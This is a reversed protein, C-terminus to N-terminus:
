WEVRLPTEMWPLKVWQWGWPFRELVVDYSKREVRLLWAGDRLSLLGPRLLFSGRFGAASMNHLIPAQAIVAKLLSACEKKESKLLPPGFDFVQRLELGCLLKNLPLLYEPPAADQAAIVQLLGVGRQRAALDKFQKEEMLGLHTFFGTLFPWLIVLGASSVSQEEAESFRLDPLPQHAEQAMGNQRRWGQVQGPVTHRLYSHVGARFVKLLKAREERPLGHQDTNLLRLISETISENELPMLAELWASQAQPPLQLTLARLASWAEALPGGESQYQQLRVALEEGTETPTARAQNEVGTAAQAEAKKSDLTAQLLLALESLEQPSQAALESQLLQLVRQPSPRQKGLKHIAALWQARPSDSLGPALRWLGAWVEALPGESDLQYQALLRPLEGSASLPSVMGAHADALMKLLEKLPRSGGAQGHEQLVQGLEARLASGTKGLKAAVRELATRYFVTLSPYQQGGFAVMELFVDWLEHRLQSPPWEACTKTKQLLTKLTKIDQRFSREYAPALLGALQSLQKDDYQCVIRQRLQANRAFTQLLGRLEQPTEGLLKQLNEDLLRPQSNDAWWPLSGTRVFFAFLELASQNKPSHQEQNGIQAALAQRLASNTKAVFQEEFDDADLVGLDLELSEIRYLRDPQSLEACYRDILPVIRQRYVRSAQDQLAPAAAQDQVTLEIIQRKIIHRQEM